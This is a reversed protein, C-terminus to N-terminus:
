AAKHGMFRKIAIPLLAVAALLAFAIIIERTILTSPDISLRCDPTGAGKCARFASIQASIVSGLGSGISTFALTGPVIGIATTWAFTSFRAGLLAPAINVLAFPFIPAFRLFLLYSAADKRFGEAFRELVPGVKRTLSEGLSSRAIMFIICAGITAGIVTASAGAALGFLYGGTVTLISGVPLSLSVMVAYLMIFGGLAILWNKEIFARLSSENEILSELSIRKHLGLGFVLAMIAVLVILPLFRRLLSTAVPSNQEPM